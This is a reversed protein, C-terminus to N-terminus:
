LHTFTMSKYDEWTLCADKETRIIARERMVRLKESILKVTAALIRPTTQNAILFFHVYTINITEEVSMKAKGEEKEGCIIKFFKGLEEGLARKKLVAEKLLNMM